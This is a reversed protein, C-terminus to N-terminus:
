AGVLGVMAGANSNDGLDHNVIDFRERGMVAIQDLELYRHESLSVVLGRRDGLTSSSRMDGFCIMVAGVQSGTGPMKPTPVIPWGLYSMLTRPGNPTLITGGATAGLRAFTNGVAFASCYFKANQLYQEPLKGILSGLDAADLTVFTSHSAAAVKSADHTGDLLKKRIGYIGGYTQGGDGNFGCDDEKDALAFGMEEMFFEGLGAIEDEYLESPIRTFACLKRARLGVSDFGAQSEGLQGNDDVFGVTYGGTRRPLNRIDSGMSRSRANQRFVGAANRLAIIADETEEPVLFGGATNSTTSAAAHVGRSLTRGQMADAATLIRVRNQACWREADKSGLMTARVWQGTRVARARADQMDEMASTRLVQRDFIELM